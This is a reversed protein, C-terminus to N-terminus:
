HANAPDKDNFKSCRSGPVDSFMLVIKVGNRLQRLAIDLLDLELIGRLRVSADQRPDSVRPSARGPIPLDTIAKYYAHYALSQSSRAQRSGISGAECSQAVEPDLVARANTGMIASARCQVLDRAWASDEHSLEKDVVIAPLWLNASLLYEMILSLTTLQFSILFFLKFPFLFPLM